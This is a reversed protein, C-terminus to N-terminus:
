ISESVVQTYPSDGAQNYGRIRFYYKGSNPAVITATNTGDPVTLIQIFNVGDTSKEIYFGVQEGLNSTWTLNIQNSPGSQSGSGQPNSALEKAGPSCGLTLILGLLCLSNLTKM